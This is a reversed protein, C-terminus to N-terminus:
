AKVNIHSGVNAVAAPAASAILGGRDAVAAAQKALIRQAARDGSAAEKATVSSPETLEKLAAVAASLATNAAQSGSSVPAASTPRSAAPQGASSQPAAAAALKPTTPKTPLLKPAM